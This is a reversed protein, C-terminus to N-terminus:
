DGVISAAIETLTQESAPSADPKIDSKSPIPSPNEKAVEDIAQNLIENMEYGDM